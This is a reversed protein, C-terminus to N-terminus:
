AGIEEIRIGLLYLMLKRKIIYEKTMVGKVDEVVRCKRRNDYYVFDAVYTCSREIVAGKRDKQVPILEYKKQRELHEIEGVRKLLMLEEYRKYEAYSDFTEGNVHIKTAGYKNRKGGFLNM